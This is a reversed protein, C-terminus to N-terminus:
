CVRVSQERTFTRQGIMARYGGGSACIQIKPLQMNTLSSLDMGTISEIAKRTVKGRQEMFQLEASPLATDHRVTAMDKAHMHPPMDALLKNHFDNVWAQKKTELQAAVPAMQQAASWAVWSQVTLSRVGDEQLKETLVVTNVDDVWISLVSNFEKDTIEAKLQAEDGFAIYRTWPMVIEPQPGFLCLSLSLSFWSLGHERMTRTEDPTASSKAVSRRSRQPRVLCCCHLSLCGNWQLLVRWSVFPSLVCLSVSHKDPSVDSALNKCASTRKM